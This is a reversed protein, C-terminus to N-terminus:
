ITFYSNEKEPVRLFKVPFLCGLFKKYPILALIFRESACLLTLLMPAAVQVRLKFLPRPHDIFINQKQVIDKL